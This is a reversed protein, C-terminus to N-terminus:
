AVPEPRLEGRARAVDRQIQELLSELSAFIMQERLWREFTVRLPWGYDDVPGEHDILYTECLREAGGFAGGNGGPRRANFMPKTGVSIAARRRAGDPLHAVGAYVGDAPLLLDRHDLNATPTGITRGRQEGRVVEGVLEFPRGLCRAADAVRGQSVLWRVLTSSVVVRAHDTLTVEVPDVVIAEFGMAEGFTRLADVGAARRHGFRFDAGEVIAVPRLADVLGRVFVEPAQDLLERAPTLVRVDDAGVERLLARKRDLTSLRPPATGPRLVSAPHPDFSVVVVRGGPGVSRRAAAVLAAHGLHVGDFTGITLATTM